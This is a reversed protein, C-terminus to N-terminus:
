EMSAQRTLSSAARPFPCVDDPATAALTEAPPPQAAKSGLGPLPAVRLVKPAGGPLPAEGGKVKVEVTKKPQVPPAVEKKKIEQKEIKPKSIVIKDKIIKKKPIPKPKIEKKEIFNLVDFNKLECAFKTKFNSADFYTIPASGSKGGILGEWFDSVSNGIPTLAGLGTVVVRRPNM